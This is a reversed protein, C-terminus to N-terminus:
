FRVSLLSKTQDFHGHAHLPMFGLVESSSDLLLTLKLAGLILKLAFAGHKQLRLPLDESLPVM